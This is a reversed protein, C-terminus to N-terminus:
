QLIFCQVVGPGHVGTVLTMEIDATKSPGTTLVFKDSQDTPLKQFLDVLDPVFNRPELIAVHIPPVLSIARGHEASSRMVLAGVEAVAAWVDTVGADIDYLEDLTLADWTRAEFGAARLSEIVGLKQLFKSVPLAISKVKQSKLFDILKPKLEDVYVMEVGIKNETAVRTFLEPLGLETHVLRVITEDIAPPVPLTTLPASRGLARRVKQIVDDDDNM